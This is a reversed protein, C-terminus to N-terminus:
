VKSNNYAKDVDALAASASRIYDAMAILLDGALNIAEVEQAVEEKLSDIFEGASNEMANLIIDGSKKGADIIETQIRNVIESVANETNGSNISINNGM